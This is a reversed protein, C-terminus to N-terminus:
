RMLIRSFGFLISLSNYNARGSFDGPFHIINYRINLTGMTKKNIPYDLGTGFFMGMGLDTSMNSFSGLFGRDYPFLMGLVPGAATEVYPLLVDQLEQYFLDKRIGYFLPVLLLSGNRSYYTGNAIIADQNVSMIQATLQSHTGPNLLWSRGFFASGGYETVGGTMGHFNNVHIANIGNAPDMSHFDMSGLNHKVMESPRPLVSNQAFSAQLLFSLLGMSLLVRKM